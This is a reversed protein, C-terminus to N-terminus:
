EHGVVALNAGFPTILSTLFHRATQQAYNHQHLPWTDRFTGLLVLLEQIKERHTMYIRAAQTSNSQMHNILDQIVFCNLNELLRQNRFGYGSLHFEALEDYYEVILYHAVSFAVCWGSNGGTESNSQEFTGSVEFRCWDYMNIIQRFDLQNSHFGLRRNVQDIMEQMEPGEGFANQEVDYKLAEEIYAPCFNSPRLLLDIEPVEEYVVNGAGTAGFLGTAFARASQNTRESDTHRFLFREPSYTSPLLDPFIEQYRRAINQLGIAGSATVLSANSLHFGSAFDSEMYTRLLEFDQRCLTTRGQEYNRVIDAHVSSESFEIM